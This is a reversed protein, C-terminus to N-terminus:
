PGLMLLGAILEPKHTDAAKQIRGKLPDLNLQNPLDLETPLDVQAPPNTQASPDPM